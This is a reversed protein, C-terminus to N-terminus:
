WRKQDSCSSRRAANTSSSGHGGPGAGGKVKGGPGAEGESATEVRRRFFDVGRPGVRFFYRAPEPRRPRQPARHAGLKVHPDAAAEAGAERGVISLIVLDATEIAFHRRPLPQDETPGPM